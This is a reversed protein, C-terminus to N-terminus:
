RRAAMWCGSSATSIPTATTSTPRSNSRFYYVRGGAEAIQQVVWLQQDSVGGPPAGELLMEVQRRRRERQSSRASAPTRSPTARSGSATGDRGGALTKITAFANDPALFVELTAPETVLAAPLFAGSEWGPYQAKRGNIIDDPIRRGIPRTDTDPVPLGTRQDLKRYLIQGEEGFSTSPKYPDVAPARGARRAPTAARTSWSM